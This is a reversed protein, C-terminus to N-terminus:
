IKRIELIVWNEDPRCRETKVQLLAKDVANKPNMLFGDIIVFYTLNSNALGFRIGYYNKGYLAVVVALLTALSILLSFTTM